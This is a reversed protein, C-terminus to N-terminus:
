TVVWGEFGKCQDLDSMWIEIRDKMWGSRYGTKPGGLMVTKSSILCGDPGLSYQLCDAHDECMHRCGDFSMGASDPVAEPSHNNWNEGSTSNITPWVFSKFVVRHSLMNSYHDTSKWFRHQDAGAFRTQLWDQEFQWLRTFEDGSLHHYSLAPVCWLKRDFGKKETYDMKEPHGGQFMPWTWTLPVGADNLAKGLVCDGAWHNGTFSHWFDQREAYIQAGKEIASKSMVFVSGGHAFIDPGIQVESGYYLQKTPDLKELWQLLNSWVPYSDSEVFVYWKKDPRLKLTENMMPLFKWKDLRWGANDGKGSKSGEFSASGSLEDEHLAARGHDRVRNYIEFDINTEKLDQDVSTLVDHVPHGNFTEEFDSFIVLDQYCRFTTDFHIPLKDQIETSGTRMIVVVDEAGPLRRCPLPYSKAPEGSAPLPAVPKGPEQHTIRWTRASPSAYLQQAALIILAITATFIVAKTASPFGKLM